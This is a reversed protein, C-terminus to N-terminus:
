NKRINQDSKPDLSQLYLRRKLAVYIHMPFLIFAAALFCSALYMKQTPSIDYGVSAIVMSLLITGLFHLPLFIKRQGDTIRAEKIEVVRWFGGILFLAGAVIGLVQYIM